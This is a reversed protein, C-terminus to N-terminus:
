IQYTMSRRGAREILLGLVMFFVGFAIPYSRDLWHAYYPFFIGTRFWDVGHLLPNWVLIDRAWVPMHETVFFIGSSFYLFRTVIPWVKDWSEFHVALMASFVGFGAGAVWVALYAAACVLVDYPQFDAVLYLMVAMTVIAVCGERALSLLAKAILIDVTKVLPLQLYIKGSVVSHLMHSVTHTLVFYPLLGTTYFLYENPGFPPRSRNLITFVVGLFALHIGIELLAWLYGLRTGGYLTKIDNLILSHIVRCQVKFAGLLDKPLERTRARPVRRDQDSSYELEKLRAAGLLIDADCQQRVFHLHDRFEKNCPDAQVAREALEVAKTGSRVQAYAASLMRYGLAGPRERCLKELMDLAEYAREVRLLLGAAHITYEANQPDLRIAELAADVSDFTRGSQELVGSLVRCVDARGPALEHAVAIEKLAERYRGGQSLLSCCNLRLDVRSPDLRVATLAEAVARETRGVANATGSLALHGDAVGPAFAVARELVSFAEENRNLHRLLSGAHLLFEANQPQLRISQLADDLAREYEGSVALVASRHRLILANDPSVSLARSFAEISERYRHAERLFSAYESLLECNGPDTMLLEGLLEIAEGLAGVAFLGAAVRRILPGHQSHFPKLSALEAM